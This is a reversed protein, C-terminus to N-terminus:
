RHEGRARLARNRSWVVLYIGALVTLGGAIHRLTFTEGLLPIALLATLVPQGLLTPAVVSARIYGQAYNILFWGLFQVLIGL